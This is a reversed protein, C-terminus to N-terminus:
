RQLAWGPGRAAARGRRALLELARRAERGSLGAAPALEAVTRPLNAELRDLMRLAAEPLPAGPDADTPWGVLELEALVDHFNTVLVAAGERVARHVGASGPSTVPGPVGMSARGLRDAWHLTNLAGSRAAAEVVVTGAAFAAILRNRTLFRSRIPEAGPPQESIVLGRECIREALSAHARPYVVDAGCALVAVSFGDIALAGRHASGDIGFAGGSVVTWGRDALDAGLESAFQAGYTTSARAGVVAVARQSLEALDGAGRLWLGCPAGGVSSAPEAHDLDGLGHPWAAADRPVWRLAATAARARAQEVREDLDLSRSRWAEPVDIRHRGFCAAVIEDPGFEALMPVLRADGPEVLLSLELWPDSM